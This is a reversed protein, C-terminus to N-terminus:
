LSSLRRSLLSVNKHAVAWHCLQQLSQSNCIVLVRFFPAQTDKSYHNLLYQPAISLKIYTSCTIYMGQLMVYSEM